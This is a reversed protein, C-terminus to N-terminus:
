SINEVFLDSGYYFQMLIFHKQGCVVRVLFIFNNKLNNYTQFNIGIRLRKFIFAFGEIFM